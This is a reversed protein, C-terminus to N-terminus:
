REKACTSYMKRGKEGQWEAGGWMLYKTSTRKLNLLRQHNDCWVIQCDLQSYCVCKVQKYNSRIRHLHVAYPVLYGNRIM